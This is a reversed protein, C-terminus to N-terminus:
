IELLDHLPAAIADNDLFAIARQRMELTQAPTTGVPAHELIEIIHPQVVTGDGDANPVEIDETFKVTSRNVGRFAGSRKAVSRYLQMLKRMMPTHGTRIYDSRNPTSSRHDTYVEDVLNADNLKDVALTITNGQM